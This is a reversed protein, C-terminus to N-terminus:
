QWLYLAWMIRILMVLFMADFGRGELKSFDPTAAEGMARPHMGADLLIRSGDAEVLYSNAGIEEARTLNTFKM